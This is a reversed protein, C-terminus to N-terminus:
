TKCCEEISEKLLPELKAMKRKKDVDDKYVVPAYVEIYKDNQSEDISRFLTSENEFKGRAGDKLIIISGEDNRSQERVSKISFSHIIVLEAAIKDNFVKNLKESILKEISKKKNRNKKKGIENLDNRVEASFSNVKSSFVLKFLKRSRLRNFIDFCFGKQKSGMIKNILLNDDWKLYEKLHNPSGDYRYIKRLWELEDKDMGLELARTIMGDTILRIRHRYVQTSLHYKALVFQEIAYVGDYSAALMSDYDEKHVRLTGILRDIDYVGYKVGCFYSDRLLYDMKDADLPGSVINHMISECNSGCLLDIIKDKQHQSLLVGVESDTNIIECTLKEHIKEKRDLEVSDEDYYQELLNESVHSFPGHGIDHLLATLRILMIKETDNILREAM